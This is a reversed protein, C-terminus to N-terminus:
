AAGAAAASEDMADALEGLVPCWPAWPRLDGSTVGIGRFVRIVGAVVAERDQVVTESTSEPPLSHTVKAM